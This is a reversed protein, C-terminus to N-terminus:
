RICLYLTITDGTFIKWQCTGEVKVSALKEKFDWVSLDPMSASLTLSDGKYSDKSYLIIKCPSSDGSNEPSIPTCMGAPGNIPSVTSAKVAPWIPSVTPAMVAPWIPSATPAMVAGPGNFPSVTSAMVREGDLFKGDGSLRSRFSEGNIEAVLSTLDTTFNNALSMRKARELVMANQCLKGRKIDQKIKLYSFFKKM